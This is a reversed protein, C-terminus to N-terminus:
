GIRRGRRRFFTLWLWGAVTVLLVGAAVWLGGWDDSSYGVADQSERTRSQESSPPLTTEPAPSGLARSLAPPLLIQLVKSYVGETSLYIKGSKGIALGEGQRQPPLQMSGVERLGPFSLVAAGGYSRLMVQEGDPRFSGDTVLGPVQGVQRLRNTSGEDLTRPAAYVSGGTIEKTVVYLRGTDPHVLLTEADHPSDPYVLAFKAADVQKDGSTAAGLGRVQYVDISDRNRNNDGIDGVWLVGGPGPALAEVDAVSESSYTTVAVTNGSAKDVAYVVPGDGSDNVTFLLPGGDVLGSSETIERDTFAFVTRHEVLESAAADTMGGLAMGALVAVVFGECSWRTCSPM